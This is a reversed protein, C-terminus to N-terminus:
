QSHRPLFKKPRSREMSFIRQSLYRKFNCGLNNKSRFLEPHDISSPDKSIITMPELTNFLNEGSFLTIRELEDREQVVVIFTLLCAFLAAVTEFRSDQFNTHKDEIGDRACSIPICSIEIGNVVRM